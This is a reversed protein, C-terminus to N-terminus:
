PAGGNYGGAFKQKYVGRRQSDVLLKERARKTKKPAGRGALLNKSGRGLNAGGFYKQAAGRPPAGGRTTARCGGKKKIYQGRPTKRGEIILFSELLGGLLKKRELLSSEFPPLVGEV